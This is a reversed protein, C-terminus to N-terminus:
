CNFLGMLEDKSLVHHVRAPGRGGALGSVETIRERRVM